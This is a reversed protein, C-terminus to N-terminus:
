RRDNPCFGQFVCIQVGILKLFLCVAKFVEQVTWNYEDKIM